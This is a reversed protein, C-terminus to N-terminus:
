ESGGKPALTAQRRAEERRLVAGTHAALARHRKTEAQRCEEESADLEETAAAIEPGHLAEIEAFREALVQHVEHVKTAEIM